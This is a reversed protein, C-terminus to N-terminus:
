SRVKAPVRAAGRDAAAPKARGAARELQAVLGAAKRDTGAAAARAILQGGRDDGHPISHVVRCEVGEDSLAATFEALVPTCAQGSTGALDTEIMGGDRVLVALALDDKIAWLGTSRRGTAVDVAYGISRLAREAASAALVREDVRLRDATRRLAARLLHDAKISSAAAQAADGAMLAANAADLLRNAQQLKPGFAKTVLSETMRSAAIAGRRESAATFCAMATAGRDSMVPAPNALADLHTSPVWEAPDGLLEGVAARILDARTPQPIATMTTTALENYSM